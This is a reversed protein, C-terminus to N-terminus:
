SNKEGGTDVHVSSLPNGFFDLAWFQTADCDMQITNNPADRVQTVLKAMSGESRALHGAWSHFTVTSMKTGQARLVVIDQVSGSM